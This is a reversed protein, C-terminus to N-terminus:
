KSGIAFHRRLRSSGSGCEIYVQPMFQHVKRMLWYLFLYRAEDGLPGFPCSTSAGMFGQPIYHSSETAEDVSSRPLSTVSLVASHRCCLVSGNGPKTVTGRERCSWNRRAALRRRGRPWLLSWFDYGTNETSCVEEEVACVRFSGFILLFKRLQWIEM